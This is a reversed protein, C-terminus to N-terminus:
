TRLRESARRSSITATCRRRCLSALVDQFVVRDPRLALTSKGPELEESAPDNLHGFLVKEALTLPRRVRHRVVDLKSALTEYVRTAMEPTSAIDDM